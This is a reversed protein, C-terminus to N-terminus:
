QENIHKKLSSIRSVEITKSVISCIDPLRIVTLKTINHQELKNSCIAKVENGESNNSLLLIRNFNIDIPVIYPNAERFKAKRVNCVRSTGLTSCLELNSKLLAMFSEHNKNKFFAIEMGLENIKDRIWIQNSTPTTRVFQEAMNVVPIRMTVWLDSEHIAVTCMEHSYYRQWEWSAFIPVFGNKNSEIERLNEILFDINLGKENCRGSKADRKIDILSELIDDISNFMTELELYNELSTLANDVNNIRNENGIIEKAIHKLVENQENIAHRNQDIDRHQIVANAMQREIAIKMALVNKKNQRWDEPGPNGFLKSILNGVFEIARKDRYVSHGQLSRLKKETRTMLNKVKSNLIRGFTSNARNGFMNSLKKEQDVGTILSKLPIRSHIYEVRDEVFVSIDHKEFKEQRM